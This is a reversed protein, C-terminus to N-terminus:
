SLYPYDTYGKEDGAYFTTTDPKALPLNNALRKVLDPNAIFDMGFSVLDAHDDTIIKNGTEGTFGRNAMLTGKYVDRAQRFYIDQMQEIATGTLDTAPGVLHLYGLDYENLKELIYQFMPITHEDPQLIGPNFATPTFKVGIRKSDWVQKLTDLIEFLLRARNEISGGYEDTRQNTAMSLFQPILAFIQAHLEVGDFGAVVANFAAQEFDDITQKIEEKTFAIPTVTDKPGTPTYTTLQPNIASPGRPIDGEFFDPHSAAGSHSMQLFIKGGNAHVAKTVEKWGEVQTPTFIGPVHVFGIAKASVWTSESIILGASARQAYYTAMLSTPALEKNTARARTLSSMIVRNKLELDGLQYSSFLPQNPHSM